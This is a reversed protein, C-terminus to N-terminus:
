GPLEFAGYRGEAYLDGILGIEFRRPRDGFTISVAGKGHVSYDPRDPASHGAGATLGALTSRFPATEYLSVQCARMFPRVM